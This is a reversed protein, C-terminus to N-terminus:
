PDKAFRVPGQWGGFADVTLARTNPRGALPGTVTNRTEARRVGVQPLLRGIARMDEANKKPLGMFYGLAERARAALAQEQFLTQDIPYSHHVSFPSDTFAAFANASPDAVLCLVLFLATLRMFLKPM